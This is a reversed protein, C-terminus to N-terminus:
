DVIVAIYSVAKRLFVLGRASGGGHNRGCGAGVIGRLM